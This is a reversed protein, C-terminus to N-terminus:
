KKGDTEHIYNLIVTECMEPEGAAGVTVSFLSESQADEKVCLAIMSIRLDRTPNSRRALSMVYSASRIEPKEIVTSDVSNDDLSTAMYETAHNYSPVPLLSDAKVSDLCMGTFTVLIALISCLIRSYKGKM